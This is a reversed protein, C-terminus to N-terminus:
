TRGMSSWYKKDLFLGTFETKTDIETAQVLYGLFITVGKWENRVEEVGHAGSVDIGFKIESMSIMEYAYSFTIFPFCGEPGVVAVKFPTDHRKSEGISGHRELAEHVINESVHKVNGYNYVKVVDENVRVIRCLVLFMYM